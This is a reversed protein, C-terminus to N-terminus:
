RLGVTHFNGFSEVVRRLLRRHPDPQVAATVGRRIQVEHVALQLGALRPLELWRPRDHNVGKAAVAVAPLACALRINEFAAVICHLAEVDVRVADRQRAEAHASRTRPMKTRVVRILPGAHMRPGAKRIHLAVLLQRRVLIGHPILLRQPAHIIHRVVRAVKEVDREDAVTAFQVGLAIARLVHHLHQRLFLDLRRMEDAGAHTVLIVGLDDLLHLRPDLLRHRLPTIEERVLNVNLRLRGEIAAHLPHIKVTQLFAPLVGTEVCLHGAAVSDLDFRAVHRADNEVRRRLRPFAVSLEMQGNISLLDFEGDTRLQWLELSEFAGTWAHRIGHAAQDLLVALPAVKAIRHGKHM